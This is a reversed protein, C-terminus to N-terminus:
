KPPEGERPKARPLLHAILKETKAYFAKMEAAEREKRKKEAYAVFDIPEGKM